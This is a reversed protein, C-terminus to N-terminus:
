SRRTARVTTHLFDTISEEFKALGHTDASGPRSLMPARDPNAEFTEECRRALAWLARTFHAESIKAGTLQSVSELLDLNAKREAPSFRTKSASKPAKTNPARRMETGPAAPRGLPNQSTKTPPSPDPAQEQPEAAPKSEPLKGETRAEVGGGSEPDLAKPTVPEEPEDRLNAANFAALKRPAKTQKIPM